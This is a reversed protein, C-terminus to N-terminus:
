VISTAVRALAHGGDTFVLAALYALSLGLGLLALVLQLRHYRDAGAM